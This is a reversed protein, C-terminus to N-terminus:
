VSVDPREIRTQPTSGPLEHVDIFVYARAECHQVLPHQYRPKGQQIVMKRHGKSIYLATSCLQSYQQLLGQKEPVSSQACTTVKGDQVGRLRCM